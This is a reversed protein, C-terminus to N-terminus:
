PVQHWFSIPAKTGQADLVEFELGQGGLKQFFSLTFPHMGKKLVLEGVRERMGHIGDNLILEQGAIFLKSGDDSSLRFVYAGTEPLEIWGRFQLGFKEKPLFEPLDVKPLVMTSDAQQEEFVPLADWTGQFLDVTVGSELHKPAKSKLPKMKTFTYIGVLSKTGDPWTAQVQLDASRKLKLPELYPQWDSSDDSKIAISAGEKITAFPVEMNQFFVSSLLQPRPTLYGSNIKKLITPDIKVMQRDYTMLGNNEQEIDTLQTYIAASLGAEGTLPLLKWVLNEYAKMLEDSSQIQQYGWGKEAWTHGPLNLGLGGFEGLVRARNPGAAEADPAKPEPYSHTDLVDGIGTDTWGSANNVLRTPDWNKLEVVFRDTNFQGWGENFPVWMIVSPHNFLADVMAKMEVRFKKKATESNNAASPMDQWVLMGLKDCHYYWRDPEVKVHKRLLNFGMKKATEIDFVMAEDTPPTYLGDPWFGQDLLGLQFLPKNNVFIRSVGAADKEISIKRLGFYGKVLDLSNGSDDVIELELDYLFPDDVSWPHPDSIRLLLPTGPKGTSEAKFKEGSIRAILKIDRRSAGDVQARIIVRSKDLDPECRYESIYSQPVAELWVTQWIGSVGTYWIGHPDLSQKGVAQGGADTSDSVTITLEQEGKAVLRDTIDLSFPDYGGHHWGVQVGNVFVESEYDVAGFHVLVRKGSWNEPVTFHRRYKMIHDPLVKKGVGSLASEVPFPVLIKGTFYNEDTIKDLIWLDWLGNLNKWESRLMNPRPYEKWVNDPSVSASWRTRLPSEAMSWQALLATQSYFLTFFIILSKLYM